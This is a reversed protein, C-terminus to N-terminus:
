RAIRGDPETPVILRALGNVVVIEDAEWLAKLAEDTTTAYACAMKELLAGLATDIKVKM